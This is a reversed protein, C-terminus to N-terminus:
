QKMATELRIRRAEGDAAHTPLCCLPPVARQEALYQHATNEKGRTGKLFPTCYSVVLSVEEMLDDGPNYWDLLQKTCRVPFPEIQVLQVIKVFDPRLALPARTKRLTLRETACTLM